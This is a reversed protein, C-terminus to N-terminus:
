YCGALKLGESLSPTAGYQIESMRAVGIEAEACALMTNTVTIQNGEIGMTRLFARQSEPIKSVDLTFAVADGNNVAPVSVTDSETDSTAATSSTSVETGTVTEQINTAVESMQEDAMEIVADTTDASFYGLIFGTVFILLGMVVAQFTSGKIMDQSILRSDFKAGL